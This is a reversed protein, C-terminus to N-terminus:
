SDHQLHFDTYGISDLDGNPLINRGSKNHFYGIAKFHNWDTLWLMAHLISETDKKEDAIYEMDRNKNFGIKHHGAEWRCGDAAVIRQGIAFWPLAARIFEFVTEKKNESGQVAAETRSAFNM